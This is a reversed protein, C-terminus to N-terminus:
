PQNAAPTGADPSPHRNFSLVPTLLTVALVVVWIRGAFINYDALLIRWPRGFIFHGGLFEFAVTLAVWIAGIAWADRVTAPGIWPMALSGAIFVLVSLVMTSVAQALTTGLRPALLAERAAGNAIALALLVLWALAARAVM